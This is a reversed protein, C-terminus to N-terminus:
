QVTYTYVDHEAGAPEYTKTQVDDSAVAELYFRVRVGQKQAPIYCGYIGDNAQADGHSGDDFMEIASFDGVLGTGAYLRIASVDTNGNVRATVCVQDNSSPQAWTTGAVSWQADNIALGTVNVESHSMLFDHRARVINKLNSVEDTFQAHTMMKKPDAQIYADIKDAYTDILGTMVEPNFSEALITRFHALYRQRINPVALLKNLLPFNTNTENYFPSWTINRPHLCENGDYEIPMLRGTEADWYLYYDMGGKFAYGDDDAFIIECALFWLTRDLDLVKRIAAELEDPPTNNLVDCVNILDQWPDNRYSKKLKYHQEYDSSNDGLYSLSSKGAGFGGGPPPPPIGDPMGDPPPPIGRGGPMGNGPPNGGPEMGFFGGGPLSKGPFAGGPIGPPPMSISSEARWRSGKKSLFWESIFDSDIQQSNIYIGWYEGNIYLDIYNNALATIYRQNVTEYVIERMFSHDSFACNFNLNKYGGAKQKSDEYDVSINFSKKNGPNHNYSTNGKFRVGVSNPLEVGDYSMRAPLETESMHNAALQSWWDTQPFNLDVRKIEAFDYYASRAGGGAILRRGDASFAYRLPLNGALMDVGLAIGNGPQIITNGSGNSDSYMQKEVTNLCACM